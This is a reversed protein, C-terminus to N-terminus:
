NWGELRLTARVLRQEENEIERLNDCLGQIHAIAAKRAQEPLRGTVANYLRAHQRDIQRKQAQRHYLNNVSAFVSNLLLDTLSRLTQVLVPNHSAECIALHFAHDLRAHASAELEQGHADLLAQYARGILVFDADTGRLAALRASEGELLSRVEFLDYLTRPQSRFLHMLASTAGQGSLQAVFSGKGQETEIIGRARLLKLGERLATRSVGLKETLRRESPLLQGTKLVGDVILREIRECVVDAVQHRTSDKSHM